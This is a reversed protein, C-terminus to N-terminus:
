ILCFFLQLLIHGTEEKCVLSVNVLDVYDTWNDNQTPTNENHSTVFFHNCLRNRKKEIISIFFRLSSAARISYESHLRYESHLLVYTCANM